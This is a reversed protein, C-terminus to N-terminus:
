SPMSNPDTTPVRSNATDSTSSTEPAEIKQSAATQKVTAVPATESATDNAMPAGIRINPRLLPASPSDVLINALEYAGVGGVLGGLLLSIVAVQFTRAARNALGSWSLDPYNRARM